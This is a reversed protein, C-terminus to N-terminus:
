YKLMRQSEFSTTTANKLSSNRITIQNWQVHVNKLDLQHKTEKTNLPIALFGSFNLSVRWSGGYFQIHHPCSATPVPFIWHVQDQTISVRVEGIPRCRLAEWGMGTYVKLVKLFKMSNWWTGCFGVFGWPIESFGVSNWLIWFCRISDQVHYVKRCTLLVVRCTQDM